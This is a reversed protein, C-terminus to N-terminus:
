KVVGFRLYGNNSCMSEPPDPLPISVYYWVAQIYFMQHTPAWPRMM